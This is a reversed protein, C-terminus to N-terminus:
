PKVCVSAFARVCACLCARLCVFVCMYDRVCIRACPKVIVSGGFMQLIYLLNSSRVFYKTKFLSM